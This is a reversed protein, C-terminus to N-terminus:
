ESVGHTISNLYMAGDIASLDKAQLDGVLLKFELTNLLLQYHVRRLELLLDSHRKNVHFQYTFLLEGSRIKAHVLQKSKDSNNVMTNLLRLQQKYQLIVLYQQQVQRDLNALFLSLEDEAAIKNFAMQSVKNSTRGGQYLPIHIDLGIAAEESGPIFGEGGVLDRNSYYAALSVTPYHGAKAQRWTQIAQEKLAQLQKSNINNKRAMQQWSHLTQDASFLQTFIDPRIALGSFTNQSSGGSLQLWAALSRDYVSQVSLLTLEIRGLELQSDFYQEESIVGSALLHEQRALQERKETLQSVALNKQDSALLVNVFQQVLTLALEQEARVGRLELSKQYAEAGDIARFRQADYIPQIISLRLEQSNFDSDQKSYSVGDLLTLICNTVNSAGQCSSVDGFADGQYNLVPDNTKYHNKYVGLNLNVQPLILSKVSKNVATDANIRSREIGLKANNDLAFQYADFLSVSASAKDLALTPLAIRMLFSMLLLCRYAKPILSRGKFKGIM